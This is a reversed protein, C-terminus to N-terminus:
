RGQLPDSPGSKGVKGGPNERVDTSHEALVESHKDWTQESKAIRGQYGAQSPLAV